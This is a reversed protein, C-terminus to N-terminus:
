TRPCPVLCFALLVATRRDFAKGILAVSLLSCGLWWALGHCRAWLPGPEHGGLRPLSMWTKLLFYYGPPHGDGHCLEVVRAPTQNIVLVTYQEDVWLRMPNKALPVGVALALLVPLWVLAPMRVSRHREKTM